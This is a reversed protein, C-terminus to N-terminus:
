VCICKTVAYSSRFSYEGTDNNDSSGFPNTQETSTSGWGDEGTGDDQAPEQDVTGGPRWVEDSGSFLSCCVTLLHCVRNYFLDDGYKGWAVTM